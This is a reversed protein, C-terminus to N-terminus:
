SGDQTGRKKIGLFVQNKLEEEGCEEDRSSSSQSPKPPLDKKKKSGEIAWRRITTEEKM